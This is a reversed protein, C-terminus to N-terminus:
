KLTITPGRSSSFTMSKSAWPPSARRIRWIGSRIYPYIYPYIYPDRPMPANINTPRQQPRHHLRCIGTASSAFISGLIFHRTLDRTHDPQSRVKGVIGTRYGADRLKSVYTVASSSVRGNLGTVGHQHPYRGTLITARSPSCLSLVAFSDEIVAGQSALQNLHTTEALAGLRSTPRFGVAEASHDDSIIFLINPRPRPAPPAGRSARPARPAAFAAAAAPSAPPTAADTSAAAAEAAAGAATFAAVRHDPESAPQLGDANVPPAEVGVRVGAAADTHHSAGALPRATNGTAEDRDARLAGPHHREHGIDITAFSFPDLRARYWLFQLTAWIFYVGVALELARRGLM